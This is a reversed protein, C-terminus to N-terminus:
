SKVLSSEWGDYQGNCKNTMDIIKMTVEDIEYYFPKDVRYFQVGYMTKSNFPVEIDNQKKFGEIEVLSVFDERDKENEFYAKHEIARVEQLTDGQEKLSNCSHHNAIIQWERISPFLLKKYVEWEMDMRSGFEYKYNPFNNMAAFVTSSWEFDLKLYYIFNVEGQTIIRGIYKGSRWRLSEMELRDEIFSIDDSEEQTVLGDDKPKNLKVKVFGVYIHQEDPAFDAVGANFSVMAKHGDVQKVYSEWYEQM